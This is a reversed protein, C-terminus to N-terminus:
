ASIKEIMGKIAQIGCFIPMTIKETYIESQRKQFNDEEAKMRFM